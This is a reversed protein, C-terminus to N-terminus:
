RGSLASLLSSSPSHIHTYKTEMYSEGLVERCVSLRKSLAAEAERARYGGEVLVAMGPTQAHTTRLERGREYAPLQIINVLCRHHM